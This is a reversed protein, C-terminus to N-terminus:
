SGPKIEEVRGAEVGENMVGIGATHRIVDKGQQGWRFTEEYFWALSSSEPFRKHGSTLGFLPVHPAPYSPRPM